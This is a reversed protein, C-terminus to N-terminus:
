GRKPRCSFRRRRGAALAQYFAQAHPGAGAIKTGDSVRADGNITPELNTHLQLSLSTGAGAAIALHMGHLATRLSHAPDSEYPTGSSSCETSALCGSDIASACRRAGAIILARAGTTAFVIAGELDTNGDNPVHLAEVVLDRYWN